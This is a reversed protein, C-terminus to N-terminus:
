LTIDDGWKMPMVGHLTAHCDVDSPSFEYGRKATRHYCARLLRPFYNGDTDEREFGPRGNIRKSLTEIIEAIDLALVHAELVTVGLSVVLSKKDTLPPIPLGLFVVQPGLDPAM